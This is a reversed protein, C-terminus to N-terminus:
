FQKTCNHPEIANSHLSLVHLRVIASGLSHISGILVSLGPWLKYRNIGISQKLVLTSISEKLVLISISQMLVLTGISQKFVSISISQM